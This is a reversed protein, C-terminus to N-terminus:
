ADKPFQEFPIVAAVPKYCYDNFPEGLSIILVVRQDTQTYGPSRFSFQQEWVPDTAVLDYATHPMNYLFLLM